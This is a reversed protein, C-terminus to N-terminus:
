LSESSHLSQDNSKGIQISEKRLEKLFRIPVNSFTNLKDSSALPLTLLNSTTKQGIKYAGLAFSYSPGQADVQAELGWEEALYEILEPAYVSNIIAADTLWQQIPFFSWAEQAIAQMTSLVYDPVMPRYFQSRESTRTYLGNKFRTRSSKRMLGFVTNRLTKCLKLEVTDRFPITGKNFYGRTSFETDLSLDRYLSFYCARIDVYAFHGKTPGRFAVPARPGPSGGFVTLEYDEICYALYEAAVEGYTFPWQYIYKIKNTTDTISKSGVILSCNRPNNTKIWEIPEESIRVREFESNRFKNLLRAGLVEYLNTPPLVIGETPM